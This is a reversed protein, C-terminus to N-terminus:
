SVSSLTITDEFHQETDHHTHHNIETTYKITNQIKKSFSMLVHRHLLKLIESTSEGSAPCLVSVAYASFAPKAERQNLMERHQRVACTTHAAAGVKQKGSKTMIIPQVQSNQTLVFGGKRGEKLQKDPVRDWYYPYCYLSSISLLRAEKSTM